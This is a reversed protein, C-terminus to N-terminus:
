KSRRALNRHFEFQRAQSIATLQHDYRDTSECFEPYADGRADRPCRSCTGWRGNRALQRFGDACERLAYKTADDIM